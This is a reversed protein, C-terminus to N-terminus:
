KDVQGVETLQKSSASTFRWSLHGVGTFISGHVTTTQCATFFGNNGGCSGSPSLLKNCLNISMAATQETTTGFYLGHM